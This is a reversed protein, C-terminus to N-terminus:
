SVSERQWRDTNGEIKLTFLRPGFSIELVAEILTTSPEWALAASQRFNGLDYAQREKVGSILLLFSVFSCCLTHFVVRAELLARGRGQLRANPRSSSGSRSASRAPQHRVLAAGLSSLKKTKQTDPLLSLVMRVLCSLRLRFAYARGKVDIKELKRIGNLLLNIQM